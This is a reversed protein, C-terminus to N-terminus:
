LRTSPSAIREMLCAEGAASSNIEMVFSYRLASPISVPWYSLLKEILSAREKSPFFSNRGTVSVGKFEIRQQTYKIRCISHLIRSQLAM